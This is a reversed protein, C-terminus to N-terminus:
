LARSLAHCLLSVMSCFVLTFGVEWQFVHDPKLVYAAGIMAPVCFATPLHRALTLAFEPCDGRLELWHRVFCLLAGAALGVLAYLPVASQDHVAAAAVLSALAACGSGLSINETVGRLWAGPALSTNFTDMRNETPAYLSQHTVRASQALRKRTLAM